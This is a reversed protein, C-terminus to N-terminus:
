NELAPRDFFSTQGPLQKSFAPNLPVGCGEYLSKAVLGIETPTSGMDMMIRRTVSLLRALGNLSVGEPLANIKPATLM